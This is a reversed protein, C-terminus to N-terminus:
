PVDPCCTWWIGGVYLPHCLGSVLCTRAPAAVLLTRCASVGSDSPFSGGWQKEWLLCGNCRLTCRVPVKRIAELSKVPLTLNGDHKPVPTTCLGKGKATPVVRDLKAPRIAETWSSDGACCALFWMFGYVTKFLM